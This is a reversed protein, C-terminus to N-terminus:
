YPQATCHAPVVAPMIGRKGTALKGLWERVRQHPVGKGAAIEARVRAIAQAEAKDDIGDFVSSDESLHAGDVPAPVCACAAAAIWRCGNGDLHRGEQV